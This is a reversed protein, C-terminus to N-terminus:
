NKFIPMKYEADSSALTTGVHTLVDNEDFFFWARDEQEDVGRVSLLVLFLAAQKQVSFHYRYASRRGLQVVETPAGLRAVVDAASVGPNLEALVARDLGQNVETRSLFCAPTTSLLVLFLLFALLFFTIPTM